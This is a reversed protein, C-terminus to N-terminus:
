ALRRRSGVGEGAPARHHAGASGSGCGSVDPGPCWGSGAESKEFDAFVDAPLDAPGLGAKM